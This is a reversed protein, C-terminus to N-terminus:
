VGKGDIELSMKKNWTEESMHIRDFLFPILFEKGGMSNEAAGGKGEGWGSEIFQDRLLFYQFSQSSSDWQHM